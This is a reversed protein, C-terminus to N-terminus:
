NNVQCQMWIVCEVVRNYSNGMWSNIKIYGINTNLFIRCKLRYLNGLSVYPSIKM